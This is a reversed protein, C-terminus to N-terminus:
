NKKGFKKFKKAHVYKLAKLGVETSYGVVSILKDSSVNEQM